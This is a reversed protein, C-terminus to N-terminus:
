KINKGNKIIAKINCPPHNSKRKEVNYEDVCEERGRKVVQYEEGVSRIFEGLSSLVRM